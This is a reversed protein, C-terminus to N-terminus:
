HFEGEGNNSLTQHIFTWYNVYCDMPHQSIIHLLYWQEGVSVVSLNGRFTNYNRQQKNM